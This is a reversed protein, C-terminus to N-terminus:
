RCYRAATEAVTQAVHCLSEVDCWEEAAHAGTGCGGLVVTEIGAAALFASDMWWTQGVHAPARGLVSTACDTVLSVLPADPSIEFAPRSLLLRLEASFARDAAGLRDLIAQIEAVADGDTEGPITRREIELTSSAAYTSPGTGGHLTAAHLSAPGVLPHRRGTRLSRELVELESLVRGMRMNADIGLDFRSGHAARGVTTVQLWIFGKHAICIDLDTPETVIAGDTRHRAVLAQTGVSAFEEDAVAAVVVDGGLPVRADILAKVAALAAALGGKMDFAGRGYVRGDRLDGSFPDSMANVDVTDTHANLMLSRGGGTGSLRGVINPRGPAADFVDVDLGWAAFLAALYRVVDAEGPAGPELAPNVSNIRVLARLTDTLFPRDIPLM